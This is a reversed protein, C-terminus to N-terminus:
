DMFRDKRCEAIVEDMGVVKLGPKNVLVSQRDSSPDGACPIQIEIDVLNKLDVLAILHSSDPVAILGADIQIWRLSNEPVVIGM